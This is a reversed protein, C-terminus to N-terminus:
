SPRKMGNLTSQGTISAPGSKDLSRIIAPIFSGPDCIGFLCDPADPEAETILPEAM